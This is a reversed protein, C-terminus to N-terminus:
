RAQLRPAGGTARPRRRRGAGHRCVAAPPNDSVDVKLAPGSRLEVRHAVVAVKGGVATYKAANSLLNLLNLLNLLILLIQRLRKADAMIDGQVDVLDVSVALSRAEVPGELMHLVEGV